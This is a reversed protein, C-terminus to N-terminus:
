ILKQLHLTYTSSSFTPEWYTCIIYYNGDAPLTAYLVTTNWVSGLEGGEAVIGGNADMLYLYRHFAPGSVLAFDIRLYDGASGHFQYSDAPTQRLNFLNDSPQLNGNLTDGYLIPTSPLPTPDATVQSITILANVSSLAYVQLNIEDSTGDAPYVLYGNRSNGVAYQVEKMTGNSNYFYLYASGAPKWQFITHKTPHKAFQYSKESGYTYSQSWNTKPVTILNRESVYFYESQDLRQYSNFSLNFNFFALASITSTIQFPVFAGYALPPNTTADLIKTSLDFETGSFTVGEGPQSLSLHIHRNTLDSYTSLTFWFGPLNMGQWLYQIRSDYAKSPTAQLQSYGDWPGDVRDWVLVTDAM